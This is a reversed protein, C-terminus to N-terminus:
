FPRLVAGLLEVVALAIPRDREHTACTPRRSTASRWGGSVGRIRERHLLDIPPPGDHTWLAVLGDGLIRQRSSRPQRDQLNRRSGTSRRDLGSRAGRIRLSRAPRRHPASPEGISNRRWGSRFRTPAESGSTAGFIVDMWWVCTGHWSAKARAVLAIRRSHLHGLLKPTGIKGSQQFQVGGARSRRRPPTQPCWATVPRVDTSALSAASREWSAVPSGCTAAVVAAAKSVSRSHFEDHARWPPMSVPPQPPYVARWAIRRKDLLLWRAQWKASTRCGNEIRRKLIQEQASSPM